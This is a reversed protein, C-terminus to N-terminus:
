RKRREREYARLQKFDMKSPDLNVTGTQPQLPKIPAPAGAKPIIPVVNSTEDKKKWQAQIEGIEALADDPALAFIRESEALNKSFWYGLDGGFQSKVMYHQIYPPVNIDAKDVVEKFDSYKERAKELRAEFAKVALAQEAKTREDAQRKRDDDVAKTASYEALKEAYEFAKFEGKENYFDKADPKLNKPIEAVTAKARLESLERELTTLKDEAMRAREFQSKSFNESDDLEERLKKALAEAQRMERHKKNIRKQAKEALDADDAELGTDEEEKPAETKPESLDVPQAEKVVELPPAAKAEKQPRDKIVEVKGTEVFDQMGM